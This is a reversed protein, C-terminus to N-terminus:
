IGSCPNRDLKNNMVAPIGRDLLHSIDEEHDVVCVFDGDILDSM